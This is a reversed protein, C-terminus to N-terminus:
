GYFRDEIQGGKMYYGKEELWYFSYTTTGQRVYVANGDKLEPLIPIEEFSPYIRLRFHLKADWWLQVEKVNSVQQIQEITMPQRIALLYEAILNFRNDYSSRNM